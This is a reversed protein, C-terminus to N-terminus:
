LRPKGNWERSRLKVATLTRWTHGVCGAAACRCVKECCRHSLIREHASYVERSPHCRAIQTTTSVRTRTFALVVTFWEGHALEPHGPLVTYALVTRGPIHLGTVHGTSLKSHHTQM